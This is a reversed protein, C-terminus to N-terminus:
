HLKSDFWDKFPDKKRRSIPIENNDSMVLVQKNQLSEIHTHNVLHSKHCRFFGKDQLLLEM